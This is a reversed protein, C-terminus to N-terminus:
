LVAVVFFTFHAVILPILNPVKFYLLGNILGIVMSGIMPFIASVLSPMHFIQMGMFLATSLMIAIWPGLPLFYHLFIGRFIIEECGVQALVILLALPLFLIDITHLYHRLWGSRVMILWDKVERPFYSKNCYRLLEIVARCILSSFSMMGIGLFIGFFVFLGLQSFFSLLSELPIALLWLLLLIYVIHMIVVLPLEVVGKAMEVPYFKTIKLWAAIKPAIFFIGLKIYYYFFLILSASVLIKYFLNFYFQLM